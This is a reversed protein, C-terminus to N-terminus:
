LPEEAFLEVEVEKYNGFDIVNIVKSIVAWDTFQEAEENTLPVQAAYDGLNLEDGETLTDPLELETGSFKQQIAKDIMGIEDDSADFLIRLRAKM